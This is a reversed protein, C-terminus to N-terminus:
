GFSAFGGPSDYPRAYFFARILKFLSLFILPRPKIFLTARVSRYVTSLPPFQQIEEIFFPRLDNLCKTNPLKEVSESLMRIIGFRVRNMSVNAKNVHQFDKNSFYKDFVNKEQIKSIRLFSM